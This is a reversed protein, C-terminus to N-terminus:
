HGFIRNLERQRENNGEVLLRLSWDSFAIVGEQCEDYFCSSSGQPRLYIGKTLSREDKPDELVTLSGGKCLTCNKQDQGQDHCWPLFDQLIIVQGQHTFSRGMSNSKPTMTSPPVDKQIPASISAPPLLAAVRAAAERNQIKHDARVDALTDIILWTVGILAISLVTNLGINLGKSGSTGM